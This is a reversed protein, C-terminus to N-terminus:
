RVEKTSRSYYNPDRACLAQWIEEPSQGVYEGDHMGGLILTHFQELLDLREGPPQSAGALEESTMGAYGLWCPRCADDGPHGDFEKGCITCTGKVLKVKPEHATCVSDLRALLDNAERQTRGSLAAQSAYEDRITRLLQRVETSLDKSSPLDSM